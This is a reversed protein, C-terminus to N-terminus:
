GDAKLNKLNIILNESRSKIKKFDSVNLEFDGYWVFEYLRSLYNFDTKIIDQTIESKYDSNTKQFQYDIIKKERLHKLTNLFLYRSALRYNENQEAEEVLSLLDKQRLLQEEESLNVLNQHQASTKQRSSYYKSFLWIILVGIGIIVLIKLILAVYNWLNGEEIGSLLWNLFKNWQLNLWNKFKDWASPEVITKFYNYNDDTKYSEIISKDFEIPTTDLQLSEKQLIPASYLAPPLGGLKLFLLLFVFLRIAKTKIEM